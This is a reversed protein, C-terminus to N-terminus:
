IESSLKAIQDAVLQDFKAAEIESQKVGRGSKYSKALHRLAFIDNQNAALEYYRVAQELDQEVGIGYEYCRGMNCQAPAFNQEAALRYYKAAETVDREMGKVHEYCMGLNCQAPAHNQEAALRYYKMAEAVDREVGRGREYCLALNNQAPAHNQEAALRYYKVSETLDRAVGRGHEYCVGLNSQASAQNQEASLQYLKVAEAFDREVGRGNEYCVGLNNQARAFKQAAALRYYKIAQQLNKEVGQGTEYCLGLEFQAHAVGQASALRFWFFAATPNLPFGNTELRFGCGIALQDQASFSTRTQVVLHRATESLESMDLDHPEFDLLAQQLLSNARELSAIYPQIRPMHHHLVHQSLETPPVRHVCNKDPCALRCHNQQHDVLDCIRFEAHCSPRSCTVRRYLCQSIQHRITEALTGRFQCGSGAHICSTNLVLVRQRLNTVPNVQDPGFTRKCLPCPYPPNGAMIQQLCQHGFTHGCRRLEVLQKSINTCIACAYESAAQENVFQSSDWCAGELHSPLCQLCLAYLCDPQQCRLGGGGLVSRCKSCSLGLNGGVYRVADHEHALDSVLMEEDCPYNDAEIEPQRGFVCVDCDCGQNDAM